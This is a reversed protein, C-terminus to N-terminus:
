FKAKVGNSALMLSALLHGGRGGREEGAGYPPPPLLSQSPSLPKMARMSHVLDRRM